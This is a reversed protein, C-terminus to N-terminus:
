HKWFWVVTYLISRGHTVLFSWMTLTRLPTTKNVKYCKMWLGRSHLLLTGSALLYGCSILNGKQLTKSIYLSQGPEPLVKLKSLHKAEGLKDVIKDMLPMYYPDARTVSNLKRFDVCLRLSGDPKMVPVSIGM